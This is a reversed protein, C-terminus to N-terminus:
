RARKGGPNFGAAILVKAPVARRQRVTFVARQLHRMRYPPATELYDRRIRSAVTLIRLRADRRTM